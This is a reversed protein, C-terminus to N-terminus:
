GLSYLDCHSHSLSAEGLPTDQTLPPLGKIYGKLDTGAMEKCPFVQLRCQSSLFLSGALICRSLLWPLNPRVGLEVLGVRGGRVVAKRQTVEQHTRTDSPRYRPKSPRSPRDLPGRKVYSWILSVSRNLQVYENTVIITTMLWRFMDQPGLHKCRPGGGSERVCVM